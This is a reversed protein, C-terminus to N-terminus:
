VVSVKLVFNTLLFGSSTPKAKLFHDSAQTHLTAIGCVETQGYAVRIGCNPFCNWLNRIQMESIASGGFMFDKLSDIKAHKTNMETFQPAHTSSLFAVTM